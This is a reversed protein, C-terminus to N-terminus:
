GGTALRRVPELRGGGDGVARSARGPWRGGVPADAPHAALYSSTTAPMSGGNTLLVAGNTKAAAAGASLADPFNLGTTLFLDLPTGIADAIRTATEFRDNGGIRVVNYNLSRVKAEVASSIAGEGGLLYVTRGTPVMRKLADEARTDLGGPQTLLLPGDKAAALPTGALADPFNDHRALVAAGGEGAGFTADSIAIATAIRDPGSLRGVASVKVPGTSYAATQARADKLVAYVFYTGAPVGATSWRHVNRGQTVAVNQAILTGNFGGADTDYYLDAKTGAEWANDHFAIDFGGQAEDDAAVRIDDLHWRRSGPDENPDFRLFSIAQNVWGVRAGKQEEDLVAANPQNLDVVVRNIGQYTVVDNLEQYDNAGGGVVSWVVRAMSGGGPADELGFAGDYSYTFSLRHYKSGDIAGAMPLVVEPDNRNPPGNTAHLTGSTFSADTVNAFAAADTPQSMDWADGRSATAYDLGGLADPDEIVPVPPSDVNLPGSYDSRSAGDMAYFYYTGAPYAAANFTLTNSAASQNVRGLLGWGASSNTNNSPNTDTDYFLDVPGGPDSDTWTVDSTDGPKYLRIWDVAVANGATNGPIMRLTTLQGSWAKTGFGSTLAMPLDYTKWGAEIQFPMGGQCNAEHTPCDYWFIGGSVRADSRMSFSIRTFRAADIKHLDGDRGWALDGPWTLVPDFSAGQGTTFQLQGDAMGQNTVNLMGAKSDLRQDEGNQYDWPDGFRETAYDAGASVVGPSPSSFTVAATAPSATVVVLCLTLLALAGLARSGRHIPPM